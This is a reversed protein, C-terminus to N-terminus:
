FVKQPIYTGDEINYHMVTLHVGNRACCAVVAVIAQTLGSIYVVLEKKGQYVKTLGAGYQNLAPDTKLKIGVKTVLFNEVQRDLGKFDFLDDVKSFIYDTVPMPHRGAILGVEVKKLKEM